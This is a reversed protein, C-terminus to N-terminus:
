FRAALESEGAACSSRPVRAMAPNRRIYRVVNGFHEWDRVLRDHYGKQWLSGTRGLHRNIARATYGKWSDMVAPLTHGELIGALVHVHNPMVVWAHLRTRVGEFFQLAEAVIAACDPQRLVCEGMGQDLWREIVGSFRRHYERGVDPSWPEPYEERWASEEQRHQRLLPAPM